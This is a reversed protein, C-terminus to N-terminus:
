GGCSRWFSILAKAERELGDVVMVGQMLEM